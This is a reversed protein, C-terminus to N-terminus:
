PVEQRGQQEGVVLVPDDDLPHYGDLAPGHDNQEFHNRGVECWRNDHRRYVFQDHDNLIAEASISFRESM